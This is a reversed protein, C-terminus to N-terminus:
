ACPPWAMLSPKTQNAIAKQSPPQAKLSHSTRWFNVLGASLRRAQNATGTMKPAAIMMMQSPTTMAKSM